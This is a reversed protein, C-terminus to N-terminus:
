ENGCRVMAPPEQQAAGFVMENAKAVTWTSAGLGAALGGVTVVAFALAQLLNGPCITTDQGQAM